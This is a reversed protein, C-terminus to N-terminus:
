RRQSNSSLFQMTHPSKFLSDSEGKQIELCAGHIDENRTIAEPVPESTMRTQCEKQCKIPNMQIKEHKITSKAFEYKNNIIERVWEPVNFQKLTSM